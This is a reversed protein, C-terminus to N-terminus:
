PSSMLYYRNIVSYMVVAAMTTFLITYVWSPVEPPNIRPLWRIRAQMLAFLGFPLLALFYRGQVGDAIPARVPNWLIYFLTVIYVYSCVLIAILILLRKRSLVSHEPLRAMAVIYGAAAVFVVYIAHPFGYELWGLIGIMSQLYFVSFHITTKALMAIYQLPHFIAYQIQVTPNVGPNLTAGAAMGKLELWKGVAVVAALAFFFLITRKWYGVGSPAIQRDPLIFFLLPLLEYGGSKSLLLTAMGAALWPLLNKPRGSVIMVFLTCAFLVHMGDYSYASLQHLFMPVAYVYTIIPKYGDPTRRYLFAAWILGVALLMLRGLAFTLYANLGMYEGLLFGASLPLYPLTPLGCYVAPITYDVYKMNQVFLPRRYLALRFKREAHNPLKLAKVGAIMQPIDARLSITRNGDASCFAFGKAIAISRIFHTEEDPKQLPPVAVAFFIGLIAILALLVHTHAKQRDM